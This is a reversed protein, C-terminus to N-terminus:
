AVAALAKPRGEGYRVVPVGRYSAGSVRFSGRLRHTM